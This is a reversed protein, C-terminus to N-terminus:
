FPMASTNSFTARAPRGMALDRILTENLPTGGASRGAFAFEDVEKALPGRAAANQRNDDSVQDVAGNPSSESRHRKGESENIEAALLNMSAHRAGRKIATTVIEDYAAKMGYLKLQKMRQVAGHELVESREM